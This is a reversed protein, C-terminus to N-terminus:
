MIFTLIELNGGLEMGLNQEGLEKGLNGGLSSPSFHIMLILLNYYIYLLNEFLFFCQYM